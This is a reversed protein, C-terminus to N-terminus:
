DHELPELHKLQKQLHEESPRYKFCLEGSPQKKFMLYKKSKEKLEQYLVWLSVYETFSSVIHHPFLSDKTINFEENTANPRFCNSM